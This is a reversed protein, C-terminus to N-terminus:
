RRRRAPRAPRGARRCPTRRARWRRRRARPRQSSAGARRGACADALEGGDGGEVQQAPAQGVPGSLQDGRGHPQEDGDRGGRRRPTSPRRAVRVHRQAEEALTSSAQDVLDGRASAPPRAPHRGHSPRRRASRRSRSPGVASTTGTVPEVVERRDGRGHAPKARGSSRGNRPWRVTARRRGPSGAGPTTLAGVGLATAPRPPRARACRARRPGAAVPGGRRRPPPAAPPSPPGARRRDAGATPTSAPRRRRRRDAQQGPPRRAAARLPAPRRALRRRRGPDTEPHDHRWHM